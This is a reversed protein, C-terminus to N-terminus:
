VIGADCDVQRGMGSTAALNAATTVIAATLDATAITTAALDAAAVAASRVPLPRVEADQIGIPVPEVEAGCARHPGRAEGDARAHVTHAHASSVAEVRDASDRGMAIDAVAHRSRKSRAM